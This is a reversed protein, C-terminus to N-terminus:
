RKKMIGKLVKPPPAVTPRANFNIQAGEEDEGEDESGGRRSVLRFENDIDVVLSVFSPAVGSIGVCHDHEAIVVFGQGM